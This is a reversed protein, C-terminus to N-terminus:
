RWVLAAFGQDEVVNKSVVETSVVTSARKRAKRNDKDKIIQVGSVEVRMWGEEDAVPISNFGKCSATITLDASAGAVGSRATFFTKQEVWSEQPTVTVVSDNGISYKVNCGAAVHAQRTLASLDYQQDPCLTIPQTITLTRGVVASKFQAITGNGTPAPESGLTIAPDRADISWGPLSGDEQMGFNPNLVINGPDACAAQIQEESADTGSRRLRSALNTEIPATTTSTLSTASSEVSASSSSPDSSSAPLDPASSAPSDFVSSAPLDIAPSEVVDTPLSAATDAVVGVPVVTVYQVLTTTSVQVSIQVDTM